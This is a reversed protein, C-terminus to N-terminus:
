KRRVAVYSYTGETCTEGDEACADLRLEYRDPRINFLVKRNVGKRGDFLEGSQIILLRDEEVKVEYLKRNGLTNNSAGVIRRSKPRVAYLVASAFTGGVSDEDGHTEEIAIGQGGMAWHAVLRAKSERRSGDAQAFSTTLDWEGILFELAALEPPAASHKDGAGAVAPLAAIWLCTSLVLIPVRHNM